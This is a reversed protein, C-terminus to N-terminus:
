PVAVWDQALLTLLNGGDNDGERKCKGGAISVGGYGANLSERIMIDDERRCCM